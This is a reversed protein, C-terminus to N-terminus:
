SYLYRDGNTPDTSSMLRRYEAEDKPGRMQILLWRRVDRRRRNNAKGMGDNLTGGCQYGGTCIAEYVEEGKRRDIFTRIGTSGNTGTATQEKTTGPEPKAISKADSGPKTPVTVAM